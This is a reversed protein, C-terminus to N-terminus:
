EDTNEWEIRFLEVSFTTREKRHFEYQHELDFQTVAADTIRGGNDAAFAEVFQQSGENHFSYSVRGVRAAVELFVRDAHVNSRQAGFPPNMVVTANLSDRVPSVTVDAWIWQIPRPPDVIQVNHRAIEIAERDRELGVIREPNRFACGIALVGTGSGLDIVLHDQIDGRLDAFHVLNAAIGSPTPYQELDIRPADFSRVAGLRRALSRKTGM